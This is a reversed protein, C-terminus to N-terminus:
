RRAKPVDRRRRRRRRRLGRRDRRRGRRRRTRRVRPRVHQVAAVRRPQHRRPAARGLRVRGRDGRPAPAHPGRRRRGTPVPPRATRAARHAGGPGRPAPRPPRGPGRRRRAPHRAGRLARRLARGGRARGHRQQRCREPPDGQPLPGQGRAARAAHRRVDRGRVGRLADRQPTGASPRSTARCGACRRWRTSSASSGRAPSSSAARGIACSTFGLVGLRYNFSVVVVDNDAALRTGDYMPSASSGWVFAGGHIFVMVPRRRRRVAPTWVNLALCDGESVTPTRGGRPVARAPEAAAARAAADHRRPAGRRDGTPAAPRPLATRRRATRRLPHGLVARRGAAVHGRRARHPHRVVPGAM